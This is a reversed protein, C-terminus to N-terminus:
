VVQSNTIAFTIYEYHREEKAGIDPRYITLLLQIGFLPVLM